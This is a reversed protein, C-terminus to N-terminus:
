GPPLRSHVAHHWELLPEFGRTQGVAENLGDIAGAARFGLNEDTVEVSVPILM